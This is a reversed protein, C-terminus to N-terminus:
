SAKGMIQNNIAKLTFQLDELRCQAHPLYLDLLLEVRRQTRDGPDGLDELCITILEQLSELYEVDDLAALSLNALNKATNEPM